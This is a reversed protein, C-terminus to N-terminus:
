CYGIQARSFLFEERGYICGKMILWGDAQYLQISNSPVYVRLDDMWVGEGGDVFFFCCFFFCTQSLHLIHLNHSVANTQM